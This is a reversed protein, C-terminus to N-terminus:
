EVPELEPMKRPVVITFKTGVGVESKLTIIGGMRTVIEKVIYLGMGTGSVNKAARYFIDFVKERAIEPIGIGNDEVTITFDDGDEQVKVRIFNYDKEPDSYKISNTILNDLLSRMRIADSILTTTTNEQYQLEITHKFVNKSMEFISYVLERWDIAKLESQLKDNKAIELIDKITDDARQISPILMDLTEVIEEHSMEMDKIMTIVGKFSNLPSRLNHSVSYIFNDIEIKKKELENNKKKLQDYAKALETVDRQISIFHTIEKNEGFVPTIELLNLFPEGNKRYNTITCEINEADLLAKRLKERLKPETDKGQLYDGPKRGIVESLTYGTIKSFADNVWETEGNNNTIIVGNQTRTAILSLQQLEAHRRKLEDNQQTIFRNQARLICMSKLNSCYLDFVSKMIGLQADSLLFNDHLNFAGLYIKMHEGSMLVSFFSQRVSGFFVSNDADFTQGRFNEEFDHSLAEIKEHAVGIGQCGECALIRSNSAADVVLCVAAETEFIDIISEVVLNAFRTDNPENFFVNNYSIIKEHSSTELDLINRANIYEQQVNSFKTLQNRLSENETLVSHLDKEGM